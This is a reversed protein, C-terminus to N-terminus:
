PNKKGGIRTILWIIAAVVLVSIIVGGWVGAKFIDGIVECSTFLFLFSLLLLQYSKNKM